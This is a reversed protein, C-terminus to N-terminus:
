VKISLGEKINQLVVDLYPLIKSGMAEALKGIAV